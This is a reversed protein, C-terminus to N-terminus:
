KRFDHQAANQPKRFLLLLHAFAVGGFCMGFFLALLTTGWLEFLRAIKAHRPFEPDVPDYLVTVHEGEFYSSVNSSISAQLTRSHGTQDRYEVVPTYGASLLVLKTVKGPAEVASRQFKHTLLALYACVTFSVASIGFFLIVIAKSEKSSQKSTRKTTFGSRWRIISKWPAGSRYAIMLDVMQQHTIDNLLSSHHTGESGERYEATYGESKGGAVQIYCHSSSELIAYGNGHMGLRELATQLESTSPNSIETGDETTLKMTLSDISTIRQM